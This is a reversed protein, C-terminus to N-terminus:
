EALSVRKTHPEEPLILIKHCNFFTAAARFKHTETFSIRASAKCESKSAHTGSDCTLTMEMGCVVRQKNPKKKPSTFQNCKHMSKRAAHGRNEAMADHRGSFNAVDRRANRVRFPSSSAARHIIFINRIGFVYIESGSLSRFETRQENEFLFDVFFFLFASSFVTQFCLFSLWFCAMFVCWAACLLICWNISSTKRGREREVLVNQTTEHINRRREGKEAARLM